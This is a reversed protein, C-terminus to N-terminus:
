RQYDQWHAVQDGLTCYVPAASAKLLHTLFSAESYWGVERILYTRIMLIKLDPLETESLAM